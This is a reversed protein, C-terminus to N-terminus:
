SKELKVELSVVNAYYFYGKMDDCYCEGSYASGDADPNYTWEIGEGCYPCVADYLVSSINHVGEFLVLKKKISRDVKDWKINENM